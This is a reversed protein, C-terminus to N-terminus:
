ADPGQKHGTRDAISQLVHCDGIRGSGCNDLVRQLENRLASLHQIRITIEDVHHKAIIDVATCPRNPDAALDLLERIATPDFGLQRAQRIFGLRELAADDYRRHGSTAREPEAILGNQEYYRITTVKVGTRRSLEGIAYTRTM